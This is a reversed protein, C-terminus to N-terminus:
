IGLESEIYIGNEEAPSSTDISVTVPKMIAQVRSRVIEFNKEQVAFIVFKVKLGLYVKKAIM